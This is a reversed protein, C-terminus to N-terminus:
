QDENHDIMEKLILRKSIKKKCLKVVGFSGRGITKVIDIENQKTVPCGHYNRELRHRIGFRGTIVPAEPIKFEM